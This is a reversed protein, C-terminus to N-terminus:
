ELLSKEFFLNVENMFDVDIESTQFRDVSAYYKVLVEDPISGSYRDYLAHYEQNKEQIYIRAAESQYLNKHGNHNKVSCTKYTVNPNRIVNRHAIISAGTYSISEDADGHILLVPIDTSNIGDVATVQVDRGFLFTQYVWGFPYELYALPGVISNIQEDMLGMPANFGSISVVACVDHTDNLIATVAYGGWSHGYLM